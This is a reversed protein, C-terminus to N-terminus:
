LKEGKSFIAKFTSTEARLWVNKDSYWCGSV